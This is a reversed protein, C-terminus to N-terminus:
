PLEAGAGGQALTAIEWTGVGNSGNPRHANLRHAPAHGNSGTGNSDHPEVRVPLAPESQSQEAIEGNTGDMSPTVAELVTEPTTEVAAAEVKAPDVQSASQSQEAIKGDAGDNSPTPASPAAAPASAAGAVQAVLVAAAYGESDDAFHRLGKRRLAQLEQLRRSARLYMRDDHGEQRALHAFARQNKLDEELCEGLRAKPRNLRGRQIAYLDREQEWLRQKRWRCVVMTEVCNQEDAGMPLSDFIMASRLREYDAHNDDPLLLIESTLGHTMANRSVRRKGEPTSPGTSRQANSQNAATQAETTM